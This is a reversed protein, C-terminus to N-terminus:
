KNLNFHFYLNLNRKLHFEHLGIKELQIRLFEEWNELNQYLVSADIYHTEALTRVNKGNIVAEGNGNRNKLYIVFSCVCLYTFFFTRGIPITTYLRWVTIVLLQVINICRSVYM